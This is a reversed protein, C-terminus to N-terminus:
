FHVYEIFHCMWMIRLHQMILRAYLPHTKISLKQSISHQLYFICFPMNQPCHGKFQVGPVRLRASFNSVKPSSTIPIKTRIGSLLFNRLDNWKLFFFFQGFHLANCIQMNEGAQPPRLFHPFNKQLAILGSIEPMIGVTRREDPM